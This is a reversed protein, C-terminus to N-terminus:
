NNVIKKLSDKITNEITAGITEKVKKFVLITQCKKSTVTSVLAYGQTEMENAKREVSQARANIDKICEIVETRYM